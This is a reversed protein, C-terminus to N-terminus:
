QIGARFGGRPICLYLRLGELHGGDLTPALNVSQLHPHPYLYRLGLGQCTAGEGQVPWM